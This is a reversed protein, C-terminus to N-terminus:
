NSVKEVVVTLARSCLVELQQALDVVLSYSHSHTFTFSFTFVDVVSVSLCGRLNFGVQWETPGPRGLSDLCRPSTHWRGRCLEGCGCKQDRELTPWARNAAVVAFIRLFWVVIYEREESRKFFFLHHIFIIFPASTPCKSLSLSFSLSLSHFFLCLGVHM